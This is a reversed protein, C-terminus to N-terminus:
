DSRMHASAGANRVDAGARKLALYKELTMPEGEVPPSKMTTGAFPSAEEVWTRQAPMGWAEATFKPSVDWRIPEDDIDTM